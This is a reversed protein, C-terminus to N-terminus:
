CEFAQWRGNRKHVLLGKENEKYEFRVRGTINVKLHFAGASADGSPCVTFGRAFGTLLSSNNYNFRFYPQNSPYIRFTSQETNDLVRLIEEDSDLIKNENTDVFLSWPQSLDKSCKNDVLPCATIIKQSMIATSRGYNLFTVWDNKLRDSKAVAILGAFSSAAMASVLAILIVTSLLEVLTFGLQKM